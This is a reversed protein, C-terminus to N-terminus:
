QKTKKMHKDEFRSVSKHTEASQDITPAPPIGSNLERHSAKPRPHLVVVWLEHEFRNAAASFFLGNM